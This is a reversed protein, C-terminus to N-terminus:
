ASVTAGPGAQRILRIPWATNWNRTWRYRELCSRGLCIRSSAARPGTMGRGWNGAPLDRRNCTRAVARVVGRCAGSPQPDSASHRGPWRRQLRALRHGPAVPVSKQAAAPQELGVRGRRRRYAHVRRMWRPFREFSRLAYAAPNGSQGPENDDRHQVPRSVCLADPWDAEVAIADFGKECILLKRIEARYSNFEHTGHTAEGLLVIRADGIQRVIADFGAADGMLVIAECHISDASSRGPM